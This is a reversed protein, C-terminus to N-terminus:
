SSADLLRDFDSLFSSIEAPGNLGEASISIIRADEKAKNPLRVLALTVPGYPTHVELEEEQYGTRGVPEASKTPAIAEKTSDALESPVIGLSTLDRHVNESDVRLTALLM